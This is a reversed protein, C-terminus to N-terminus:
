QQWPAAPVPDPQAGWPAVPQAQTQAPAQQAPQGGWPAAQSQQQAQQAPQKQAPAPRTTMARVAADEAQAPAENLVYPANKGREAEGYGLIGVVTRGVSQKLQGCLVKGFLLTDHYEASITADPAVVYVDAKVAQTTEGPKTATTVMSSIHEQVTIVLLDGVHQAQPIVDGNGTPAAPKDFM